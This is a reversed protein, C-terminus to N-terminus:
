SGTKDSVGRPAKRLTRTTADPRTSKAGRKEQRVQRSKRNLGLHQLTQNYKGLAANAVTAAPHPVTNGQVNIVTPGEDSVEMCAQQHLSYAQAAAILQAVDVDDIRFKVQANAM